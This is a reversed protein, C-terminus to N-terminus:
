INEFLVVVELNMWLTSHTDWIGYKEVYVEDGEMVVKM